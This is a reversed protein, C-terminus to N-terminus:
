KARRIEVQPTVINASSAAVAFRLVVSRQAIWAGATLPQGSALAMTLSTPAAPAGATAAHVQLTTGSGLTAGILVFLMGVSRRKVMAKGWAFTVSQVASLSRIASM